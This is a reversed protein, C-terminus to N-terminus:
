THFEPWVLRRSSFHDQQTHLTVRFTIFQLMEAAIQLWMQTYAACRQPCKMVFIVLSCYIQHPLPRTIKIVLLMLLAVGICVAADEGYWRRSQQNRSSKLGKIKKDLQEVRDCVTKTLGEVIDSMVSFDAVNYVHTEEPPSAIAKLENEDANKVGPSLPSLFGLSGVTLLPSM